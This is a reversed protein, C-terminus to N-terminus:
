TRHAGILVVGLVAPVAGSNRWRHRTGNQIVTDGPSLTVEAGDDLELIVEGSLVIEYDTTDTTHMGPEDPEMHALLGPLKAEVEAFAAEIDDPYDAEAVSPITFIGFRFGGVTPFYQSGDPKSGGDPYTQPEDSGWLLHFESGPMAALTVPSVQEDSAIVAKGNGDHGTVVRRVDM